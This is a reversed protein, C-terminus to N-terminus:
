DTKEMLKQELKKALDSMQQAKELLEDPDERGNGQHARQSLAHSKQNARHSANLLLTLECRKLHVRVQLNEELDVEAGQALETLKPLAENWAALDGRKAFSELNKLHGHFRQVLNKKKPEQHSKVLAAMFPNNVQKEKGLEM